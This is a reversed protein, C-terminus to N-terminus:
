LTDEMRSELNHDRDLDHDRESRAVEPDEMQEGCDLCYWGPYIEWGYPPVYNGEEWERSEEPHKCENM